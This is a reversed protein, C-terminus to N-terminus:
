NSWRIDLLLSIHTSSCYGLLHPKTVGSDSSGFSHMDDEFRELLLDQPNDVRLANAVFSRQLYRLKQTRAAWPHLTTWPLRWIAYHRHTSNSSDEDYVVMTSFLTELHFYPGTHKSFVENSSVKQGNTQVVPCVHDDQLM